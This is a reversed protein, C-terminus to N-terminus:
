GKILIKLGPVDRRASALFYNVPVAQGEEYGDTHSLVFGVLVSGSYSDVWVPGGSDGPSSDINYQFWSPDNFTTVTADAWDTAYGKFHIRDGM